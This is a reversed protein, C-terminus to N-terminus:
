PKRMRVLGRESAWVLQCEDQALRGVQRGELSVVTVPGGERPVRAIFGPVDAPTPPPLDDHYRGSDAFYVTDGHVALDGIAGAGAGLTERATGSNEFTFRDLRFAAASFLEGGDFVLASSHLVDEFLTATKLDGLAVSSLVNQSALGRHVVYATQDTSAVRVATPLAVIPEITGGPQRRWLGEPGGQGYRTTFLVAGSPTAVLSTPEGTGAGLLEPPGGGKLVRVLEFSAGTPNRLLYVQEGSLALHEYTGAYIAEVAGGATARRMLKPQPSDDSSLTQGFYIHTGDVALPAFANVKPVLVVPQGAIGECLAAAPPAPGRAAGEDLPIDSRSGCGALLLPFIPLFRGLFRV